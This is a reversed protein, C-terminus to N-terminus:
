RKISPLFLIKYYNYLNGVNGLVPVSKDDLKYSRIYVMIHPAIHLVGPHNSEFKLPKGNEQGDTYIRKVNVPKVSNLTM